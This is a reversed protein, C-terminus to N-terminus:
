EVGHIVGAPVGAVIAGGLVDQLAVAGAEIIARDGDRGPGADSGVVVV